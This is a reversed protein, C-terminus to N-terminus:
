KEVWPVPYKKKQKSKDTGGNTGSNASTSPAKKGLKGTRLFTDM